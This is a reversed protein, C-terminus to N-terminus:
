VLWIPTAAALVDGFSINCHKWVEQGSSTSVLYPHSRGARGRYQVDHMDRHVGDSPRPLQRRGGLGARLPTVYLLWPFKTAM